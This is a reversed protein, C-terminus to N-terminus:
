VYKFETTVTTGNEKNSSVFVNGGHAKVVNFSYSTGLGSGGPKTSNFKHFFNKLKDEDIPEGRNNIETILKGKRNYMTVTIVENEAGDVHEVANKLLNEYVGSILTKDILVITHAAKNTYEIRANKESAFLTYDKIIDEVICNLPEKSKNLEYKGRELDQIKKLRKLFGVLKLINKCQNEVVNKIDTYKKQEAIEKIKEASFRIPQLKNRLEHQALMTSEKYLREAISIAEELKKNIELQANVTFLVLYMLILILCFTIEFQWFCLGLFFTFLPLLIARTSFYALSSSIVCVVFFLLIYAPWSIFALELFIALPIFLLYVYKIRSRYSSDGILIFTLFVGLASYWKSANLVYILSIALILGANYNATRNRIISVSFLAFIITIICLAQQFDRYNLEKLFEEM